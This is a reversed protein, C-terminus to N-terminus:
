DESDFKIRKAVAEVNEAHAQAEQELRDEEL